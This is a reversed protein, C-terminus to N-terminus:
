RWSSKISANALDEARMQSCTAAIRVTAESRLSSASRASNAVPKCAGTRFAIIAVILLVKTNIKTFNKVYIKANLGLEESKM